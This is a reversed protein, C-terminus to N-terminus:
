HLTDFIRKTLMLLKYICVTQTHTETFTNNSWKNAEVKKEIETKFAYFPLNVNFFFFLDNEERKM